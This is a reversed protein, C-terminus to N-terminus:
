TPFLDDYVTRPFNKFVNDSVTLQIKHPKRYDEELELELELQQFM